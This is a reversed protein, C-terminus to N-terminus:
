AAVLATPATMRERIERIAREVAELDAAVAANTGQGWEATVRVDRGKSVTVVAHTAQVRLRAFGAACIADALEQPRDADPWLDNLTHLLDNYRAITLGVKGARLQELKRSDNFVRVSAARESTIGAAAKFADVLSILTLIQPATM